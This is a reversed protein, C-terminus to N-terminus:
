CELFVRRHSRRVVGTIKADEPFSLENGEAAEYEYLATATAGGSAKVAGAIHQRAEPEAGPQHSAAGSHDGDGDMLEVYNSPFLGTEGRPNQGMWWDEDVMEIDTIYDGEKLELENDEAKEYDFNM